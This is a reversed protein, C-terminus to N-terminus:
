LLRILNMIIRLFFDLSSSKSSRWQLCPRSFLYYSRKNNGNFLLRYSRTFNVINNYIIVIVKPRVEGNDAMAYVSIFGRKDTFCDSLFFIPVM